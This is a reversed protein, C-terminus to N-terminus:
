SPLDYVTVQVKRAEPTNFASLILPEVNEWKGGALGCGIRPMHVSANFKVANVAVNHLAAGLWNHRLSKPGLGDQGIMAVVCIEPTVFCPVCEGPNVAGTKYAVKYAGRATPWKKALALAFGAEHAGVNNMCHAIIKIGDGVPELANGVVYNIANYSITSM